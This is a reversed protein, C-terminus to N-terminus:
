KEPEFLGLDKYFVNRSKSNKVSDRVRLAPRKGLMIRFLLRVIFYVWGIPYLFPLKKLFPWHISANRNLTKFGKAFLGKSKGERGAVSIIMGEYKRSKDKRGFNGGTLVEAMFTEALVTDDESEKMWEREPMGLYISSALSIIRAFRWLGINKLKEAFISVFERDEMSNAFVAWDCLHRLGIGEIVMHHQLHLLMVLGHHFADPMSFTVFEDDVVTSGECIDNLYEKVTDSVASHPVGAAEYHMEFHIGPKKYVLHHHGAEGDIEDETKFGNEVLIRKAAEISAPPVYFDVDGMSRLFPEPYYHASVVGKLVCYDVAGESMLKHLYGHCRRNHFGGKAMFLIRKEITEALAKDEIPLEKINRFVLPMVTQMLSENYVSEWETDADPVYDAGFLAKSLLGLVCAQEKKAISKM